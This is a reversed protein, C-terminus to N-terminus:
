DGLLTPAQHFSSLSAPRSLLQLAILSSSVILFFFFSRSIVEFWTAPFFLGSFLLQSVILSATSPVRVSTTVRSSSSSLAFTSSYLSSALSRDKPPRSFSFVCPLFLATKVKSATKKWLFTNNCATVQFLHCGLHAGPCWKGGLCVGKLQWVLRGLVWHPLAWHWHSRWSCFM